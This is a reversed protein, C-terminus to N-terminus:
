GLDSAVSRLDFSTLTDWVDQRNDKISEASGVARQTERGAREGRWVQNSSRCCHSRRELRAQLLYDPTVCPVLVLHPPKEM